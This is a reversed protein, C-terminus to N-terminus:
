PPVKLARVLMGVVGPVEPTTLLLLPLREALVNSAEGLLTVCQGIDCIGVDDYHEEGPGGALGQYVLELVLVQPSNVTRLHLIYAMLEQMFVHIIFM